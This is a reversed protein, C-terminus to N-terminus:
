YYPRRWRPPPLDDFAYPGVARGREIFQTSVVEGTCRDVRLEYLDGSARRAKILAMPGRVEPDHFDRWGGDILRQRIEDKAACHEPRGYRPAPGAYRSPEGYRPPDVYRPPEARYAYPAPAPPPAPRYTYPPPPPPPEARRPERYIDAYRPDEYVYARRDAPGVGDDLDAARAGDAALACLLSAALALKKM